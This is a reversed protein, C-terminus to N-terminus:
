TFTSFTPSNKRENRLRYYSLDMALVFRAKWVTRIKADDKFNWFGKREKLGDLLQKRRRELRM